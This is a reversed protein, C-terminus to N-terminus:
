NEGLRDREKEFYKLTTLIMYADAILVAAVIAYVGANHILLSIILMYIMNKRFQIRRYFTGETKHVSYAHVLICLFVFPMMSFLLACIVMAENGAKPFGFYIVICSVVVTLGVIVHGWLLFRQKYRSIFELYQRNEKYGLYSTLTSFLIKFNDKLKKPFYSGIVYIALAKEDIMGLFVRDLQAIVIGFSSVGSYKLANGLNEETNSRGKPLALSSDILSKKIAQHYVKLVFIWGVTITLVKVVFAALVVRTYDGYALAIGGIFACNFVAQLIVIARSTSFLRRAILYSDYKELPALFTFLCIYVLLELHEPELFGYGQAIWSVFLIFAIIFLTSVSAHKIATLLIPDQQDFVAKTVIVNYGPIAFIRFIAVWALFFQFKGFDELSLGKSLLLVYLFGLSVSLVQVSGVVM